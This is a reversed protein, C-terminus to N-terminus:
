TPSHAVARIGACRGGRAAGSQVFRALRPEVACPVSPCKFLYRPRRAHPGTLLFSM